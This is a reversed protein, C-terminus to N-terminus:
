AIEPRQEQYSKLTSQAPVASHVITGPYIKAQAGISVGPLLTCNAGLFVGNAIIAGLKQRNTEVSGSELKLTVPQHDLRLNTTCTGYSPNVESELVSDGIFNHHLMCDPGVYSRAVESGFGIVSGAEIISQRILTHNGVVVNKGLYTPGKVVAGAEIKVGEDIYVPGELSAQPSIQATPHCYDQLRERLFLETMDLAFHPYKLKTWYGTYSVCGVPHDQMLQSLAVEYSDDNDSQTQALLALFEQPQSFYHFVLNVLDSPENGKGPKEIVATVRDGELKLYGGPFYEVEQKGTVLAYTSSRQKLLTLFFEDSVVDVANMVIIPQQGIESQLQLLADAMGLPEPQLKTRLSIGALNLERLWSDNDHNSAILIEQAGVRQLQELLHLLLPKGFFPFMTKNTVFPAFRKGEGGALIVFLPTTNM